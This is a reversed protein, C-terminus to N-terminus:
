GTIDVQELKELLYVVRQKANDRAAKLNELEAALNGIKEEM